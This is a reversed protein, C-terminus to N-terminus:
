GSKKEEYKFFILEETVILMTNFKLKKLNYRHRIYNIPLSLRGNQKYELYSRCAALELYLYIETDTHFKKNAILNMPEILFATYDKFNAIIKLLKNIYEM